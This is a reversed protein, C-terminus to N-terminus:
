GVVVVIKEHVFMRRQPPNHGRGQRRCAEQYPSSVQGQATGLRAQGNALSSITPPSELAKEYIAVVQALEEDTVRSWDYHELQDILNKLLAAEVVPYRRQRWLLGALQDLLEREMTAAFDVALAKRLARFEGPKEGPILNATLGHKVANRRSRAKGLHSKPGTSSPM